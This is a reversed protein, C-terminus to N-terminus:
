FHAPIFTKPGNPERCRIAEGLVLATAAATTTGCTASQAVGTTSNVRTLQAKPATLPGTSTFGSSLCLDNFSVATTHYPVSFWFDGIAGAGSKPVTVGLTPNHSGVIIISTPAGVVSPNRIRIGRGDIPLNAANATSTGCTFSQAVGTTANVLTVSAKPATAAGTSTIGTQSCFQGVTGYPNNFPFSTWNDGKASPPGTPILVIPKNLKFGMNSGIAAGGAAILIAAAVLVAVTLRSSKPRMMDKAEKL